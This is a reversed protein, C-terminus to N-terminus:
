LTLNFLFFAFDLILLLLVYDYNRFFFKNAIDMNNFVVHGFAWILIM